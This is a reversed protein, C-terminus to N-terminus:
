DPESVAEACAGEAADQGGGVEPRRWASGVGPPPAEQVGLGGPQRGGVQEGEVGERRASEIDREDPFRRGPPNVEQAHGSM